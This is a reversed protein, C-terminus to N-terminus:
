LPHNNRTSADIVRLVLMETDPDALKYQAMESLKLYVEGDDARVCAGYAARKSLTHRYWMYDLIIGVIIGVLFILIQRIM